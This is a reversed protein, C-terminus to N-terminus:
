AKGSEAVPRFGLARIMAIDLAPARGATTLFDGVMMGNAGAFFIWSAMDGLNRDRGACVKITARPLLFRYAAVIQLSELPSLPPRTELPTGPVPLLFNVPVSDVGLERLTLALEVRQARSEGIGFIGGSCTMLGLRKATAVTAVDEEYDHTTCMHPFFSRSTELNHHYGRLGADKLARLSSEPLIGLSACPSVGGDAAIRRVAECVTDLEAGENIRTGSTVIGFRNAGHATSGRAARVLEEAGSLPYVRTDTKHHASQACFACNEPCRGSKANVIGCLEVDWGKFRRAIRDASPFLAYADSGELAMLRLAEEESVQEGDLIKEELAEIWRRV